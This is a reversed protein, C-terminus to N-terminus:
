ITAINLQAPQPQQRRRDYEAWLDAQRKSVSSCRYSGISELFIRCETLEHSLESDTLDSLPKV